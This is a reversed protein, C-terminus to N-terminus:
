VVSKRDETGIIKYDLISQGLKDATDLIGVIEYENASEIVDICSKCHGGGGMLIIKKM